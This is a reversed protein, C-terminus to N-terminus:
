AARRAKKPDYLSLREVISLIGEIERKMAVLGAENTAPTHIDAPEFHNVDSGILILFHDDYFAAMMQTGHYEKYLAKLNEVIM